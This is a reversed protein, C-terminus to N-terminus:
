KFLRCNHKAPEPKTRANNRTSNSTPPHSGSKYNQLVKDFTSTLFNYLQKSSNSYHQPSQLTRQINLM